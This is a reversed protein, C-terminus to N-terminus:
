SPRSTARCSARRTPSRRTSPKDFLLGVRGGALADGTEGGRAKIRVALDLTHRIGDRGLSDLTLLHRAM